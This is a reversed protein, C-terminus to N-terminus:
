HYYPFNPIRIAAANAQGVYSMIEDYVLIRGLDDFKLYLLYSQRYHGNETGNGLWCGPGHANMEVFFVHRDDTPFIKSRPDRYMWPSSAKNWAFREISTPRGTSNMEGVPELTKSNAPGAGFIAAAFYNQGRVELSRYKDREVGCVFQNLNTELRKRVADVSADIDNDIEPKKLARIEPHDEFYRLVKPHTYDDKLEDVEKGAAKLMEIGDAYAKLFHVKADRMEIKLFFRTWLHGDQSGWHVDGGCFGIAWFQNPDPTTFFAELDVKWSKVTRNLWEFCRESEWTSFYNPMGPPASPFEMTFDDAFYKCFIEPNWFPSSAIIKAIKTNYEKLIM